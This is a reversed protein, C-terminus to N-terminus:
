LTPPATTGLVTALLVNAPYLSGDGTLVIDYLDLYCEMLEEERYNLFGIKICTHTDPFGKVMHPDGTSDGLLLLNTRGKVEDFVSQHHEAVCGKNFSHILPKSFGCLKDDKFIMDNSIVRINEHLAAKQKFVEVIMNSLGASFVLTPIKHALLTDLMWQHGDRLVIPVNQVMKPILHERMDYKILLDHAKSWWEIMYQVKEDHTYNPSIEIPYYTDRIAHAETTFSPPLEGADEAIAHCTCGRGGNVYYKTLTMDFDAVVQFKQPGDRSMAELRELVSSKNKTHVHPSEFLNRVTDNM